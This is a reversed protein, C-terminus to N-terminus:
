LISVAAPTIGPIRAAQGISSPHIASLKEKVENSLGPVDAYEFAAPISIDEMKKFRKVLETQRKIYGDYKTQIEVQEAVSSEAGAFRQDFVKLDGLTVAPRKLLDRLLVPQNLEHHGMLRLKKNVAACPTLRVEALHDLLQRIADKKQQYAQYVSDSVLGTLYGTERLRLDANDERLILRYEARSTFMRYPERTGKTVLDDILVGIYAKTRDLVLPQEGAVHKVANIGAMLGQAAAEEYGSTGNIQGAFFLGRILKTELTPKLQTPEVYDYEIAYGPRVIEAEELGEISRIMEFQIDAPLSTPVGNPYIETTGRGMPELFIQHRPKESFRVVKDEISPCYRAGTGKIVGAFLPSRDLGSRIIEHTKDNTYTIYCPVQKQSISGTEFSFPIPPEDGCQPTLRGFDITRGDLRPTTGTKLRGMNFGLRKLDETLKVSAPDGMRGASFNRLGIHIVGKMFTGTTLVVARGPYEEGISTMVGRITGDTVILEDVVGQKIDLNDQNELAQKMRLRYEEKDAQARLSQVAPGKKTNLRRFQIGTADINKAMEGGLADIERVLHGKALGGVAPNCSMEGIHDVNITMVLTRCGLRAAALAAECGAHGAGVVIVDYSKTYRNM